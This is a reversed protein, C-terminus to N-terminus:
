SLQPSSGEGEVRSGSAYCTLADPLEANGNFASSSISMRKAPAKTTIDGHAHSSVGLLVAIVTIWLTTPQMLEEKLM